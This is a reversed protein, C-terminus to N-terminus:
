KYFKFQLLFINNEIFFYYIILAENKNKNLIWNKNLKLYM